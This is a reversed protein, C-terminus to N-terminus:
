PAAPAEPSVNLFRPPGANQGAKLRLKTDLLVDIQRKVQSVVPLWDQEALGPRVGRVFDVALQFKDKELEFLEKQIQLHAQKVSEQRVGINAEQPELDPGSLESSVLPADAEDAAMESEAHSTGTEILRSRRAAEIGLMAAGIENELKAEELASLKEAHQVCWTEFGDTMWRSVDYSGDVTVTVSDEVIARIRLGSMPEDNLLEAIRQLEDIALLYPLLRSALLTPTLTQGDTLDFALGRSQHGAPEAKGVPNLWDTLKKRPQPARGKHPGPPILVGAQPHETSPELTEPEGPAQPDAGDHPQGDTDSERPM